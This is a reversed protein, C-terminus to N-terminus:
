NIATKMFTDFTVWYPFLDLNTLTLLKKEDGGDLNFARHRDGGGLRMPLSGLNQEM